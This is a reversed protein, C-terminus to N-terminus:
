PLWDCPDAKQESVTHNGDDKESRASDGAEGSCRNKKRNKTAESEPAREVAVCVRSTSCM